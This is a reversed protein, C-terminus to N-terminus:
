RRACEGVAGDVWADRHNLLVVYRDPELSGKVVGVVNWITAQRNDIQIDLHALVPGKGLKYVTSDLDGVWDAPPKSGEMHTLFPLADAASIPQTPITPQKTPTTTHFHHKHHPHRNKKHPPFLNTM